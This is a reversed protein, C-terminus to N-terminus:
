QGAAAQLSYNHLERDTTDQLWDLAARKLGAGSFPYSTSGTQYDWVNLSHVARGNIAVDVYAGGHWLFLLASGARATRYTQMLPVASAAQLRAATKRAQTTKSM